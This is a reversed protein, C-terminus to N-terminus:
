PYGLCNEVNWLGVERESFAIDRDPIDVLGATCERFPVKHIGFSIADCSRREPTHRGIRECSPM